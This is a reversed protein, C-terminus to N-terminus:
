AFERRLCPLLKGKLIAGALKKNHFSEPKSCPLLPPKEQWPCPPFSCRKAETGMCQSGASGDGSSAMALPIPWPTGPHCLHPSTPKGSLPAQPLCCCGSLQPASKAPSPHPSLHAGDAASQFGSPSSGAQLGKVLGSPLLSSLICQLFYLELHLFLSFHANKGRNGWPAFTQAPLALKEQIHKLGQAPGTPSPSGGGAVHTCSTSGPTLSAARSRIVVPCYGRSLAPKVLPVLMPPRPHAHFPVVLAPRTAPLPLARADSRSHSIFCGRSFVYGLAAWFLAPHAGPDLSPAHRGLSLCSSLQWQTPSSPCGMGRGFQQRSGSHAAGVRPRCHSVSVIFMDGQPYHIGAAAAKPSLEPNGECRQGWGM